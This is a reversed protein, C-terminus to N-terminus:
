CRPSASGAAKKTALKKAALKKAASNAPAKRAPALRRFRDGLVLDVTGDDRNDTVWVAGPVQKKLLAVERRSAKAARIQAAVRVRKSLPDNGVREVQFGRARLTKATRGALGDRKTANYVNLTVDSPVVRIGAPKPTPSCASSADSSTLANWGYWGAGVVFALLVVLTVPTRWRHRPRRVPPQSM